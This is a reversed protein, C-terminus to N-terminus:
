SYEVATFNINWSLIWENTFAMFFATTTNTTRKSAKETTALPHMSLKLPLVSVDELGAGVDEAVDTVESVWFSLGEPVVVM